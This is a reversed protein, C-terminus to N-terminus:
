ERVYTGPALSLVPHTATGLSPPPVQPGCRTALWDSWDTWWSGQLPERGALWDDPATGPVIEGTWFRRRSKPSPPNVIGAVHGESSLTFRVPCRLHDRIRFAQMWPAIHDQVCGVAYLPQAINGLRALRGALALGEESVLRNNLYFERLYFSLMRKALRTSDSNWHLVDSQAPADGYLYSRVAFPWILSESRLLRFVSETVRADLFGDREMLTEALAVSSEDIFVRLDGPSSFDVLTTLLTWDKVPCAADTDKGVWAPDSLWAMLTSLATGGICFGVAHVADVGTIERATEIADLAGELVYADYGLDQMSADPNKWSVMFVTFGQDCLWEVMSRGPSLDLIYYKNIWPQIFVIPTQFVTETRPAYQILEMVRNRRVVVGPTVALDVGVELLSRDVTAVMGNSQLQDKLWNAYGQGLSEGHTDIWRKVAGPNSWFFNTPELAHTMQESWFRCREKDSEDLGPADQVCGHMWKSWEAHNERLIRQNRRATELLWAQLAATGEKSASPDDSPKARMSRGIEDLVSRNMNAAM